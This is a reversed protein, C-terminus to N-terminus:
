ARKFLLIATGSGTEIATVDPGLAKSCDHVFVKVADRDTNALEPNAARWRTVMSATGLGKELDELTTFSGQGFHGERGFFTKGNSLKGERDYDHKLYESHPFEPVTPTVNWPLPLDDYMNMSLINGPATYPHLTDREFKLFLRMLEAANPTDPDLTTL